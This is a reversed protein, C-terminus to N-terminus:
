ENMYFERRKKGEGGVFEKERIELQVREELCADDINIGDYKIRADECQSSADDEPSWPKTVINTFYEEDAVNPM